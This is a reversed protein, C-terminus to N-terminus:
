RAKEVGADYRPAYSHKEPVPTARVMQNQLREEMERIAQDMLHHRDMATMPRCLEWDFDAQVYHVKGGQLLRLQLRLTTM